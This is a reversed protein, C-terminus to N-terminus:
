DAAPPQAQARAQLRCDAAPGQHARCYGRSRGGKGKRGTASRNASVSVAPDTLDATQIRGDDDVFDLHTLRLERLKAVIEPQKLGSSLPNFSADGHLHHAGSNDLVVYLHKGPHRAEFAPLVANEIYRRMFNGDVKLDGMHNDASRKKTVMATAAAEAEPADCKGGDARPTAGILTGNAAVIYHTITLMGARTGCDVLVIRCGTDKPFAATTMGPLAM